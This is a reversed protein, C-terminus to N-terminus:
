RALSDLLTGAQDFERKKTHKSIDAIVSKVDDNAFDLLIDITPTATDSDKDRIATQLRNLASNFMENEFSSKHNRNTKLHSIHNDASSPFFGSVSVKM